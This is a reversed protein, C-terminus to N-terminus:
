VQRTIVICGHWCIKQERVFQSLAVNYRPDRYWILASYRTERISMYRDGRLILVTMMQRLFVARFQLLTNLHKVVVAAILYANIAGIIIQSESASIILLYYIYCSVQRYNLALMNFTCLARKLIGIIDNSQIYDEYLTRTLLEKIICQYKM